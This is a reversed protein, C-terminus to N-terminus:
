FRDIYAESTLTSPKGTISTGAVTGTTNVNQLGLASSQTNTITIPEYSTLTSPKM